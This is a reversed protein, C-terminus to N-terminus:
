SQQEGILEVNQGAKPAVIFVVLLADERGEIAVPTEATLYMLQGARVALNEGPTSLEVHGRLCLFLIEGVAQHVPLRSGRPISLHLVEVQRTKLLSVLREQSGSFDPPFLDLTHGAPNM